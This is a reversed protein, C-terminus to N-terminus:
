KPTGDDQLGGVVTEWALKPTGQGAWIVKRASDAAPAEAKLTKAAKVAAGTATSEAVKPTTSAVTITRNTNFTTGLTGAARPPLTCWSTM